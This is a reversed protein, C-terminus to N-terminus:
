HSGTLYAWNNFIERMKDQVYITTEQEKLLYNQLDPRREVKLARLNDMHYMERPKIKSFRSQITSIVEKDFLESISKFMLELPPAIWGDFSLCAEIYALVKTKIPITLSGEIGAIIILTLIIQDADYDHVEGAKIVLNNVAEIAVSFAHVDVYYAENELISSIAKIRESNHTSYDALALEIAENEYSMSNGGYISLYSMYLTFMDAGANSLTQEAREKSIAGIFNKFNDLKHANMITERSLETM